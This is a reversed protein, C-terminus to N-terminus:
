DKESNMYDKIISIPLSVMTAILLIIVLISILYLYAIFLQGLIYFIM